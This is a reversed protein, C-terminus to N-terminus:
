IYWGLVTVDLMVFSAVDGFYDLLRDSDIAVIAHDSVNKSALYTVGRYKNQADSANKRIIFNSGTVNDELEVLLHVATAGAPVIASLDLGDVKWTGDTTFDGVQKDSSSVLRPVYEVGLGTIWSSGNWYYKKGTDSASYSDGVNASAPKDADLGAYENRKCVTIDAM